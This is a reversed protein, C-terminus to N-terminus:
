PTFLIEIAESKYMSFFKEHKYGLPNAYFRTSGEQFDMHCHTHGFIWMCAKDVLDDVEAVFGRECKSNKFQPHVCSKTPLHHTMVIVKEGKLKDLVSSLWLKDITHLNRIFATNVPPYSKKELIMKTDNLFEATFEDLDTWLTCGVVKYGELDVEVGKELLFVNQFATLTKRVYEVTENYVHGYSEHNGLVYFVTTYNESCWTIFPLWLENDLPIGVDGALFLYDAKKFKELELADLNKFFELHIDSVVQIKM